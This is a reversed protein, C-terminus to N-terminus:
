EFVKIVDGEKKVRAHGIIEDKYFLMSFAWDPDKTPTSSWYCGNEGVPVWDGNDMNDLAPLYFYKHLEADSIPVTKINKNSVYKDKDNIVRWDVGNWKNSNFNPIHAKKLLWMGGQYLHGWVCWMKKADWHPDGDHVYWFMENVNPCVACLNSAAALSTNYWRPENTAVQPFGTGIARNVRPQTNEHGQWYTQKADWMAWKTNSYNPVTLDAAIKKNKGVNCTVNGYNKKVTGTVNTTQDHLTYEVTFNTYSGPAVVMIAANKTYDAVTPIEFGETGGGNLTLTISKSTSAATNLLIGTDNFDYTGALSQDATVKIQTLKVSSAFGPTFTPDLDSSYYPMFTLYSAKHDLMFQYSGNLQRYATATGCDGDTGIHAGENPSQQAQAAKITVKDGPTNGNGTYRVPYEQATLSGDFYFKATTVKGNVPINSLTSVKLPQAAAANNIWLRDKSTWYFKVSSGTYEGYTRKQPMSGNEINKEVVSFETMGDTNLNQEQQGAQTTEDGACSAFTVAILLSAATFLHKTNM